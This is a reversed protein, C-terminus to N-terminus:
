NVLFEISMTYGIQHDLENYLEDFWASEEWAGPDDSPVQVGDPHGDAADVELDELWQHGGDVAAVPSAGELGIVASALCVDLVVDSVLPLAGPRASAAKMWDEESDYVKFCEGDKNV